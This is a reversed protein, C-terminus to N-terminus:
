MAPLTAADQLGPMLIGQQLECLYGANDYFIPVCFTIVWQGFHVCIENTIV